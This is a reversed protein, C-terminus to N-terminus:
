MGDITAFFGMLNCFSVREIEPAFLIENEFLYKYSFYFAASRRPFRSSTLGILAVVLVAWRMLLTITLKLFRRPPAKLATSKDAVTM